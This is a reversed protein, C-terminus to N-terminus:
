TFIKKSVISHSWFTRKKLLFRITWGNFVFSVCKKEDSVSFWRFTFNTMSRTVTKKRRWSTQFTRSTMETAMFLMIIISIIRDARTSTLFLEFFRWWSNERTKSSTVPFYRRIMHPSSCSCFCHIAKKCVFTWRRAVIGREGRDGGASSPRIWSLIMESNQIM